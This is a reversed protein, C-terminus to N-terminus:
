PLHAYWFVGLILLHQLLAILPMGLAFYWHRTKHHFYRMGLFSGLAGGLFAALFLAAESIRWAHRVARKKDIGMLAFGTLNIGLYYAIFLQLM